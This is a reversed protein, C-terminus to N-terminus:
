NFRALAILVGLHTSYQLLELIVAIILGENESLCNGKGLLVWGPNFPSSVSMHVPFITLFITGPSALITKYVASGLLKDNLPIGLNDTHKWLMKRVAMKNEEHNVVSTLLKYASAPANEGRRRVILSCCSFPHFIEIENLGEHVLRSVTWHSGSLATTNQIYM